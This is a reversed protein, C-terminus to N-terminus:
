VIIRWQNSTLSLDGSRPIPLINLISFQEITNNEFLVINSIELIIDDINIRKLDEPKIDDEGPMKGERVQKRAEVM